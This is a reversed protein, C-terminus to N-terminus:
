PLPIYNEDTAVESALNCSAGRKQLTQPKLDKTKMKRSPNERRPNGSTHNEHNENGAYPIFIFHPNHPTASFIFPRNM